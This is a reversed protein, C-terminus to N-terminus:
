QANSILETIKTYNKNDINVVCPTIDLKDFDSPASVMSITRTVPVTIRVSGCILQIHGPKITVTNAAYVTGYM